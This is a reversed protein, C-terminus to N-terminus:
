EGMRRCRLVEGRRDPILGCDSCPRPGIGPREGRVELRLGSSWHRGPNLLLALLLCWKVAQLPTGVEGERLRALAPARKGCVRRNAVAVVRVKQLLCGPLPAM